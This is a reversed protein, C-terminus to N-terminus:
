GPLYTQVPSFFSQMSEIPIRNQILLSLLIRSKQPSYIGSVLAKHKSTRTVIGAGTYSSIVVPIGRGTLENVKRAAVETLSGNGSAALVIGVYGRELMLDLLEVDGDSHSYLLAIKPLAVTTPIDFKPVALPLSPAFYYRGETGLMYGICGQEHAKFTDVATTHTKSVYIGSYIRDNMVVLIGRDRAGASAAVSVAQLLNLPGDASISTSPRMSGVLVVPKPSHVTFQLFTASEELTSTGHTIVIGDVDPAASRQEVLCALAIWDAGDIETSSKNSFQVFTLDAIDLAEPIARFMEAGELVGPKYDLTESRSAAKGAITGGTSIVTIRPKGNIM